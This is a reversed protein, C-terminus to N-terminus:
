KFLDFYKQRIINNLLNPLRITTQELKDRKTIFDDKIARRKEALDRTLNTQSIMLSNTEIKLLFDITLRYYDNTKLVITQVQEIFKKDLMEYMSLIWFSKEIQGKKEIIINARESIKDPQYLYTDVFSINKLTTESFEIYQEFFYLLATKRKELLDNQQFHLNSLELKINEVKRTIEEIDEKTAINKGKENFYSPLFNKITFYLIVGVALITLEIVLYINM